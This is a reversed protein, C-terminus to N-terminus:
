ALPFGLNIWTEAMTILISVLPEPVASCDHRSVPGRSDWAECLFIGKPGRKEKMLCLQM